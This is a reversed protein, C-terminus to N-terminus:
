LLLTIAAVCKIFNVTNNCFMFQLLSNDHNSIVIGGQNWAHVYEFFDTIQCCRNCGDMKELTADNNWPLM